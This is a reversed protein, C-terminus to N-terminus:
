SSEVHHFLISTAKNNVMEAVESKQQRGTKRIALVHERYLESINASCTTVTLWTVRKKFLKVRGTGGILCSLCLYLTPWFFKIDMTLLLSM